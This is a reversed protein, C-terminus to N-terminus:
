FPLGDIFSFMDTTMEFGPNLDGVTQGPHTFAGWVYPVVYWSAVVLAVGVVKALYLLYARREGAQSTRWTGIVVAVVAFAGWVMWGYYTVVILGGLVGSALWHWRGNPSAQSGFMQSQPSAQSGFPQSQPSAQSGLPQSQRG